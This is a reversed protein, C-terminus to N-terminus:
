FICYHKICGFLRKPGKEKTLEKTEIKNYDTQTQKEANHPKPNITQLSALLVATINNCFIM